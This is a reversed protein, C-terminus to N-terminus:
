WDWNGHIKMKIWFVSFIILYIIMLSPAASLIVARFLEIKQYIIGHLGNYVMNYELLYVEEYCSSHSGWIRCNCSHNTPVFSRAMVSFTFAIGRVPCSHGYTQSVDLSGCKRSLWSVSPLSNNDDTCVLLLRTQTYSYKHCLNIKM